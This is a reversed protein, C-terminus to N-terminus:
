RLPLIRVRARDADISILAGRQLVESFSRLADVLVMILTGPTVDDTRIQIVSPGEASSAALLAGFDLDHTFVIFGNRQAWAMLETDAARPSGVTSWHIAEYGNKELATVWAPTLNMDVLLKM